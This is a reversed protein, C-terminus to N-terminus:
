VKALRLKRGRSSACWFFRISPLPLLHRALLSTSPLRTPARRLYLDDVEKVIRELSRKKRVIRKQKLSMWQFGAGADAVFGAKGSSEESDYL